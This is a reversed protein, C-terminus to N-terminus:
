DAQNFAPPKFGVNVLQQRALQVSLRLDKVLAPSRHQLARLADLMSCLVAAKDRVDTRRTADRLNACWMRLRAWSKSSPLILIPSKMTLGKKGRATRDPPSLPCESKGRLDSHGRDRRRSQDPLPRCCWRHRAKRLDKFLMREQVDAGRSRGLPTWLERHEDGDKPDADRVPLGLGLQLRVMNARRSCLIDMTREGLRPLCSGRAVALFWDGRVCFRGPLALPVFVETPAADETAEPSASAAEPPATATSYWRRSAIATVSALNSRWSRLM